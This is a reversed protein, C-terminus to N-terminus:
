RERSAGCTWQRSVPAGAAVRNILRSVYPNGEPTGSECSWTGQAPEPFDGTAIVLESGAGFALRGGHLLILRGGRHYQETMVCKCNMERDIALLDGGSFCFLTGDAGVVQPGPDPCDPGVRCIGDADFRQVFRNRARPHDEVMVWVEDDESVAIQGHGPLLCREGGTMRDIWRIHRQGFGHVGVLFDGHPGAAATGPPHERVSWLLRGTAADICARSAKGMEEDYHCGTLIRDGGVIMAHEVHPSVMAEQHIWDVTGDFRMRWVYRGCEAVLGDRLVILSHAHLDNPSDIRTASGDERIRLFGPPNHEITWRSGEHDLRDFSPAPEVIPQAAPTIGFTMWTAPTREVVTGSLLQVGGIPGEKGPDVM